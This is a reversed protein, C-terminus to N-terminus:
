SLITLIESLDDVIFDAGTQELETRSFSTTVAACQMGAAKASIIGNKADEIVLCDAPAAGLGDAAKQYPQPSPKKETVDNGSLILDFSDPSIEAAKLSVVLKRMAASSVLALPYGQRRLEGILAKASPYVLMEGVNEEFLTFMREMLEPILEPKQNSECLARIFHEEGAGIFPRFDEYAAQIGGEELADKAAKMIVPESNVLVGDMDFLITKM